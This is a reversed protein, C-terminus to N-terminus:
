PLTYQTLLELIMFIDSLHTSATSHLLFCRYEVEMKGKVHRESLKELEDVHLQLIDKENAEM